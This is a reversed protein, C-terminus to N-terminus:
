LGRLHRSLSACDSFHLVPRFHEFEAANPDEPGVLIPVCGANIACQTDVGTDGVFWVLPGAAVGSGALAMEVPANDPKDAAADGAGVLRDFLKTWGLKEAEKRLVSGTKNSVVGLWAGSAALEEILADAGPLATLRELHISTFADLYIRRAEQWREGFRRPFSDRLSLRVHERVQEMTWPEQGMATLTVNLAHHITAWSDVLTNDWDFLVARPRALSM